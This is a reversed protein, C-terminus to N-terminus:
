LEGRFTRHQLTTILSDLEALAARLTVKLIEVATLRRAFERKLVFPPLGTRISIQEIVELSTSIGGSWFADWLRDVQSRIEGTLM